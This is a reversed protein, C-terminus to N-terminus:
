ESGLHEDKIERARHKMDKAKDQIAEKSEDFMHKMKTAGEKVDNKLEEAKEESM